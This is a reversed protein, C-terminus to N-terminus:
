DAGPPLGQHQTAFAGVIYATGTTVGAGSLVVILNDGSNVTMEDEAPAIEVPLSGPAATTSSSTYWDAVPPVLNALTGTQGQPPISVGSVYVDVVVAAIATITPGTAQIARVKWYYGPSPAGLNFVLSSGTAGVGSVSGLSRWVPQAWSDLQNRRRLTKSLGNLSAEFRAFIGAWLGTGDETEVDSVAPEALDPALALERV